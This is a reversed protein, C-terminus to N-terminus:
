ICSAATWRGLYVRLWIFCVVVLQAHIDILM